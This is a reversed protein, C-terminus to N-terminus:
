NRKLYWRVTHKPSPGNDVLGELKEKEEKRKLRKEANSVLLAAHRRQRITLKAPPAYRGDVIECHSLHIVEGKFQSQDNPFFSQREGILEQCIPCIRDKSAELIRKITSPM